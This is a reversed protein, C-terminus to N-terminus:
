PCRKRRRRADRELDALVAKLGRAATATAEAYTMDFYDLLLRWTQASFLLYVLAVKQRRAEPDLGELLPELTRELGRIRNRTNRARVQRGARTELSARVLAEHESFGAFLRHLQPELDEIHPSFERIGGIRDEFELGATQLLDDKTPFYRYVTRVAVRARRAVTPITLSAATEDAIQAIAADLIRQRTEAAQEDRLSSSYRTAADNM